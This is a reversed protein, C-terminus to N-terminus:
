SLAAVWQMSVWQNGDASLCGWGFTQGAPQYVGLVTIVAGQDLTGVLPPQVAGVWPFQRINLQIATVRHTGAPPAPPAEHPTHGGLPIGGSDPAPPPTTVTV